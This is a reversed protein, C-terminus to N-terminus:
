ARSIQRPDKVVAEVSDDNILRFEQGNVKLRTGSYSRFVVWDGVECFPGSPFKDEDRYADDGMAIVNGYISATKEADRLQDPIYIGGATKKEIEPLAILLKYGKPAPLQEKDSVALDTSYM